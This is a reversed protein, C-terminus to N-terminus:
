NFMAIIDVNLFWFALFSIAFFTVPLIGCVVAARNARKLNEKSAVNYVLLHILAVGVPVVIYIMEFYSKLAELMPELSAGKL